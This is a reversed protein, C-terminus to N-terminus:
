RPEDSKHQDTYKQIVHVMIIMITVTVLISLYLALHYIMIPSRIGWGNTLIAQPSTVMASVAIDIGWFCLIQIFGLGFLILLWEFRTIM